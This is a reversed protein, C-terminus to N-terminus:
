ENWDECKGAIQEFVDNLKFIGLIPDHSNVLNSQHRGMARHKAVALFVSELVCDDNRATCRRDEVQLELM